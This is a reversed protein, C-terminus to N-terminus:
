QLLAGFIRFFFLELPATTKSVSSSFPLQHLKGYKCFECLEIDNMVCSVNMKNLVQKLVQVNPHGLKSHWLTATKNHHLSATNVDFSNCPLVAHTRCSKDVDVINHALSQCNNTSVFGSSNCVLCHKISQSAAGLAFDARQLSCGSLCLQYLGDRLVGRLLIKKTVKDKILCCGDVFEASANNDAIFQSISLLNKAIQPVHLVQVLNLKVRPSTHSYVAMNGVHKIELQDGNGVALKESGFYPKFNLFNGLDSTVHSSAGSHAYWSPDAVTEPSAIYASTQNYHAQFNGQDNQM